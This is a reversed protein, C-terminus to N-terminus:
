TESYMMMANMGIPELWQEYPSTKGGRSPSSTPNWLDLNTQDYFRLSTKQQRTSYHSKRGALLPEAHAKMKTHISCNFQSDVYMGLYKVSDFQPIIEGNITVPRLAKSRLSFTVKVSESTNLKVKWKETWKHVAEPNCFLLSSFYTM